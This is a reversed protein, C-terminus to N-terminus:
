VVEWHGSRDSGIRRVRGQAKLAALHKQVTSRSALGLREVMEAQTLGPEAKLLGLLREVTKGGHATSRLEVAPKRVAKESRKKQGGGAGRLAGRRTWQPM